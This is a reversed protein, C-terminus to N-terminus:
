QAITAPCVTPVQPVTVVVPAPWHETSPWAQAEASSHQEFCHTAVLVPPWTHWLATPQRTTPSMQVLSASQQLEVAIIPEAQPLMVQTISGVAIGGTPRQRFGEPPLLGSPAIQPPIFLEPPGARCSQQLQAEGFHCHQL